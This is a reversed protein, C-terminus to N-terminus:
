EDRVFGFEDIRRDLRPRSIGLIQCAKGKHWGTAVLVSHIHDRELEKLTQGSVIEQASIAPKKGTVIEEPLLNANLADGPAVVTAKMLVNELQRVNGPWDYRVLIDMCDSPIRRITKCAEKSIKNVLREVLMPIDERRQRLPPLTISFVGLRYYLDERFRGAAVEGGLEADSAVIFRCTARQPLTAGLPTFDNDELLRLLKGQLHPSLGNIEGLYLTGESALSVKGDRKGEAGSFGANEHGFLESELFSEVQSSCNVAVFPKEAITGANHIARAVAEKGTGTEGDILVNVRNQSAIGILKFVEQMGPSRGVVVGSKDEEGFVIDDGSEEASNIVAKDVAAELEELDIPKPVYDVAGGRMAAVTSDLDQFATIMIVPLEPKLDRVEELLSFGDRGPMRIDSIVLDFPQSKIFAMGEDVAGATEVSFGRDEFHLKLTRCSAPEDDIVLIHTM